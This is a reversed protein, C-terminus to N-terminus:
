YTTTREHPFLWNAFRESLRGLADDFLRKTVYSTILLVTALAAGTTM